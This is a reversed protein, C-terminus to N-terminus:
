QLNPVPNVIIVDPNMVLICDCDWGYLAWYLEFDESMNFQIADVGDAMMKEFDVAVIDAVPPFVSNRPIALNQWPLAVNQRPLADVDDRSHIQYINADERLSFTCNKELRELNFGEEECWEKWGFAAGEPSAWLGGSPKHWMPQNKIPEIKSIDLQEFGYHIYRM